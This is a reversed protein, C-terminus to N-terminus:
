LSRVAFYEETGELIICMFAKMGSIKCYVLVEETQRLAQKEPKAFCQKLRSCKAV